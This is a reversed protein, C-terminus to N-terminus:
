DDDPQNNQGPQAEGHGDLAELAPIIRELADQIRRHNDALRHQGHRQALELLQANHKAHQRHTPLFEVTTQFQPCTLCANPHPCEQQPPRGCYGNPLSAQIRALNHKLWEADAAPSEPDYALVRGAIDVRQKQFRDFAIRITTDHLRAYVDTMGPSAHGLIRQVIHQPVGSNILRTGLTHRFQHASVTIPLGAEDRLDIHTQWNRLRRHLFRYSIPRDAGDDHHTDPFLWPSGGSWRVAVYAQQDGIAKAARETLPVLQEDRAKANRFRLCPAGVSDAVVPNFPLTCADTARLGTDILVIVLHRITPDLHNLADPDEMQAMVFESVFRPLSKQRRPLDDQYIAAEYPIEALWRHRRNHELFGRLLILCHTRSAPALGTAVLWSSFRELVARTIVSGDVAGPESAALFASFRSLTTASANATTWACGTVLRWRCWAKVAQRLWPQSLGAFTISARGRPAEIGLRSAQWVDRAYEAEIEAPDPHRGRGGRGPGAGSVSVPHDSM